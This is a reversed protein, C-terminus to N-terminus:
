YVGPIIKHKVRRQYDAYGEMGEVLMEEEYRIRLLISIVAIAAPILAWWSGLAVPTSLLWLIAGTYLPHRIRAYLGSDILQQDQNIDLLKSAFANQLMAMNM